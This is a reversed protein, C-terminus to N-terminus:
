CWFVWFLAVEEVCTSSCAYITGRPTSPKKRNLRIRKRGPGSGGILHLDRRVVEVEDVQAALVEVTVLGAVYGPVPLTWFFSGVLLSLLATGFLFLDLLCRVLLVLLVKSYCCSSFSPLPSRPCKSLRSPFSSISCGAYRWWSTKWRRCLYTLRRCLSRTTSSRSWPAGSSGTKRGSRSFGTLGRAGSNKRTCRSSSPIGPWVRRRAGYLLTRPRQVPPGRDGHPKTCTAGSVELATTLPRRWHHTAGGTGNRCDAARSAVSCAAAAGEEM